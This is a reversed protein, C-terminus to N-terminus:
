RLWEEAKEVDEFVLLNYGRNRAVTEFFQYRERNDALDVLAAQKLVDRDRLKVFYTEVLKITDWVSLRGDLARIDVLAKQVGLERCSSFVETAIELVSQFNRIGTAHIHVIDQHKSATIQHSM